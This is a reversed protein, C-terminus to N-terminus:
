ILTKLGHVTAEANQFRISDVFFSVLGGKPLETVFGLLIWCCGFHLIYMIFPQLRDLNEVGKTVFQCFSKQFVECFVDFM